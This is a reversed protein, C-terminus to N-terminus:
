TSEKRAWALLDQLTTTIDREPRWGTDASLLIEMGQRITLPLGTDVNEVQGPRDDIAFVVGRGSAAAPCPSDLNGRRRRTFCAAGPPRRRDRAGTVLIPDGASM